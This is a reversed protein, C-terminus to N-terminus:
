RKRLDYCNLETLHGPVTSDSGKGAVASFPGPSGNFARKKPFVPPITTGTEPSWKPHRPLPIRMVCSPLETLTLKRNRYSRYWRDFMRVEDRSVTAWTFLYGFKSSEVWPGEPSHHYPLKLSRLEALALEIRQERQPKVL